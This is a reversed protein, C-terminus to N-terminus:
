GKDGNEDRRETKDEHIVNGCKCKINGGYGNCAPWLSGRKNRKYCEVCQIYILDKEIVIYSDKSM